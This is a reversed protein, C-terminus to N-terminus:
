EALKGYKLEPLLALAAGIRRCMDGNGIRAFHRNLLRGLFHMNHRAHCPLSGSLAAEWLECLRSPREPLLGEALHCLADSQANLVDGAGGCGAIQGFRWIALEHNRTRIALKVGLALLSASLGARCRLADLAHALLAEAGAYEGACIRNEVCNVIAQELYSDPLRSLVALLDENGM